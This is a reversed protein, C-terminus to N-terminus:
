QGGGRKYVPYWEFTNYNFNDLYQDTWNPNTETFPDGYLKAKDRAFRYMRMSNLMNMYATAKSYDSSNLWEQTTNYKSKMDDYIQKKTNYWTNIRDTLLAEQTANYRAESEKSKASLKDAYSGLVYQLFNSASNWQNRLYDGRLDAKERNYDYITKRNFNANDSRRKINDWNLRMSENMTEAIRKNDAIFGQLKLDTAKMFAEMAKASNLSADSTMSMATRNLLNNAQRDYYNKTGYDGVIPRHLEYTNSFWPRYNNRANYEKKNGITQTIYSSARGGIDLLNPWLDNNKKAYPTIEVSTTSIQQEPVPNRTEIKEEDTTKESQQDSKSDILEDLLKYDTWWVGNEWSNTFGEARKFKKADEPSVYHKGNEDEWYFREGIKRYANHWGGAIHDNQNSKSYEKLTTYTTAKKGKLGEKQTTWSTNRVGNKYVKNNLALNNDNDQTFRIGMASLIDSDGEFMDKQFNKYLDTEEALTVDPELEKWDSVPNYRGTDYQSQDSTTWANYNDWNINAGDKELMFLLNYLKSTDYESKYKSIDYSPLLKLGGEAKLIGGQKNKPIWVKFHSGNEGTNLYRGNDLPIIKNNDKINTKYGKKLYAQAALLAIDKNRIYKSIIEAQEKGYYETLIAKSLNSGTRNSPSEGQSIIYRLGEEDLSEFRTSLNNNYENIIQKLSEPQNYYQTFGLDDWTGDEYTVSSTETPVTQTEEEESDNSVIPKNIFYDSLFTDGFGFINELKYLEDNDDIIGNTNGAKFESYKTYWNKDSENTYDSFYNTPNNYIDDIIKNFEEVKQEASLKDYYPNKSLAKRIAKARGEQNYKFKNPDEEPEPATYVDMGRMLAGLYGAAYKYADKYKDLSSYTKSSKFGKQNGYRQYSTINKNLIDDVLENYHQRVADKYDDKWQTQQSLWSEFGSEALRLYEDLDILEDDRQFTRVEKKKDAM